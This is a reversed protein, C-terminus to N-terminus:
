DILSEIPMLDVLYSPNQHHHHHNGNALLQEVVQDHGWMAAYVLASFGDLDAWKTEAGGELLVRVCDAYGERAAKMMATWYRKDTTDLQSPKATPDAGAVAAAVCDSHGYRAGLM